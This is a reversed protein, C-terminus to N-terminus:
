KSWSNEGSVEFHSGHGPGIGIYNIEVLMELKQNNNKRNKEKRKKKKEKGQITLIPVAFVEKM